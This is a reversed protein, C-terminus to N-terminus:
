QGPENGTVYPLDDRAGWERWSGDFFKTDYGLMRATFYTFSARWGIMCYAVVTDGAGAGAGEFLATLEPRSLLTPVPRSEIIEEWYMQVAGPIHGPNTMGDIGEIGGDAGTYEDDPRADILAVSSDDLREHIWDAGVLIDDRPRLTLEGREFVPAETSVDRGGEVWGGYGGDLMQVRGRLGMVELTMFARAAFLPNNAYVVIHHLDDGVGASELAAEIEEVSRMETGWAPDGDWVFQSMDLFRAGPIHGEAFAESRMDAHLVAVHEDAIHGAVWDADVLIAHEMQAVAPITQLLTAIVVASGISVRRTMMTTKMTKMTKMTTTTKMRTKGITTTGTKTM